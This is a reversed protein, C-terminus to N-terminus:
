RKRAPPEKVVVDSGARYRGYTVSILARGPAHATVRGGEDVTAVEHNSSFWLFPVDSVTKGTSDLMRAAFEKSQGPGEFTIRTPSLSVLSLDHDIVRVLLEAQLRAHRATLTALGTSLGKLRPGEVIAVSSDSSVWEIPLNRIPTGRENRLLGTVAMSRGKALMVAKGQVVELSVPIAVQIEVSAKARGARATLVTTGSRWATVEGNEVTAVDKNSSSWGVTPEPILRGKEDL